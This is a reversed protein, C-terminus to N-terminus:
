LTALEAPTNVNPLPGLDVTRAASADVWSMMSRHGAALHAGLAGALAAPWLGLVPQGRAVAPGPALASALGTPLRPMDCPAALVTDYGHDRAHVLAAALGGLPGLGSQPLDHLRPFPPWDRGAVAVAEAERALAAAVHAILPRGDLIALAKDSGFRLSRGGALIVALVVM